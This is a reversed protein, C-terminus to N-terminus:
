NRLIKFDLMINKVRNDWTYSKVKNYSNAALRKSVNKDKVLKNIAITWEEIDNPKCLISNNNDLVERIVKLDSCIIPRKSAMYEFMKLPSMFDVTNGGGSVSVSNQYPMLLIDCAAIYKPLEQNNIFGVFQINNVNLEKAKKIYKKIDDDNGGIILFLQKKLLFALDLILELGRGKYLHGSYGIVSIDNNIKLKNRLKKKDPINDFSNLDVGDHAVVIKNLLKKNYYRKIILKKLSQSIVVVRLIKNFFVMLKYCLVRKYSYGPDHLEIITKNGLVSSILAIFIDRTYVIESRNFVLYFLIKIKYIIRKSKVSGIFKILFKYKIGYHNWLDFNNGLLESAKGPTLLTINYGLLKFAQCMKM